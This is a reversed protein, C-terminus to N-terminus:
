GDVEDDLCEGREALIKAMIRERRERHERVAVEAAQRSPYRRGMFTWGQPPSEVPRRRM